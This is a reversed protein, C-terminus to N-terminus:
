KELLNKFKYLITAAQERTLPDKPHYLGDSYGSFLGTDIAWKMYENITEDMSIPKCLREWQTKTLRSYNLDVNVNQNGDRIKGSSSYQLISWMTNLELNRPIYIKEGAYYNGAIWAAMWVPYQSLNRQFDGSEVLYKSAYIFPTIGTKSKVRELFAVALDYRNVPEKEWDLVLLSKELMGLNDIVKIFFDAEQEAGAPTSFLDPRAFHYYGILKKMMKYTRTFDGLSESIYSTGETAKIFVFEFEGDVGMIGKQYASVDIGYM